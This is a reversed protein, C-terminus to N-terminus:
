FMKAVMVSLLSTLVSMVLALLFAGLLSHTFFYLCAGAGLSSFVFEMIWAAPKSLCMRASLAQAFLDLVVLVVTILLSLGLYPWFEDFIIAVEDPGWGSLLLVCLAPVMLAALNGLIRIINEGWDGPSAPPETDGVILTSRIIGLLPVESGVVTLEKSRTSKSGTEADNQTASAQKTDDGVPAHSAPVTPATEAPATKEEAEPTAPTERPQSSDSPSIHGEILRPTRKHLREPLRITPDHQAADLIIDDERRWDPINLLAKERLKQSKEETSPGPATRPLTQRFARHHKGHHNSNAGNQSAPDANDKFSM